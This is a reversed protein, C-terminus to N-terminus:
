LGQRVMDKIVLVPRFRIARNQWGRFRSDLVSNM